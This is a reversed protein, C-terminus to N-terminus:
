RVVGKANSDMFSQLKPWLCGRMRTHRDIELLQPAYLYSPPVFSREVKGIFAEIRQRKDLADYFEGEALAYKEKFKEPQKEVLLSLSRRIRQVPAQLEGPLMLMLLSLDRQKGKIVLKPDAMKVMEDAVDRLLCCREEAPRELGTPAISPKTMYRVRSCRLFERESSTADLPNFINVSSRLAAKGLWRSFLDRKSNDPAKRGRQIAKVPDSLAGRFSTSSPVGKLSLNIIDELLIKAKPLRLVSNLAIESVELALERSPGDTPHLPEDIVRMFDPPNGALILAHIGPYVVMGSVRSKRMRRLVKRLIGYVIWKPISRYGKDSSDGAKKQIITAALRALLPENEKFKTLNRSFYLRFKSHSTKSIKLGNKLRGKELAIISYEVSRNVDKRFPLIKAVERDCVRFFSEVDRPLHRGTKGTFVRVTSAAHLDVGFLSILLVAFLASFLNSTHFNTSM